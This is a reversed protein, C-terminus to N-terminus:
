TELNGRANTGTTEEEISKCPAKGLIHVKRVKKEGRKMGELLTECNDKERVM